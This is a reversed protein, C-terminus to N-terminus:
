QTHTNRTEFDSGQYPSQQTACQDAEMWSLKGRLLLELTPKTKLLSHWGTTETAGELAVQAGQTYDSVAVSCDYIHIYIDLAYNSCAYITYTDSSISMCFMKRWMGPFLHGMLGWWDLILVFDETELPGHASSSPFFIEDSEIFCCTMFLKFWCVLSHM